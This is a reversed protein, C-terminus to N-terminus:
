SSSLGPNWDRYCYSLNRGSRDGAWVWGIEYEIPLPIRERFYLLRPTYNIWRTGFNRVLPAVSRSGQIGEHSACPM